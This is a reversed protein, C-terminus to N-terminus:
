MQWHMSPKSPLYQWSPIICRPYFRNVAVNNNNCSECEYLLIQKSAHRHKTMHMMNLLHLGPNVYFVGERELTQPCVSTDTDSHHSHATRHHNLGSSFTCIHGLNHWQHPCSTRCQELHSFGENYDLTWLILVQIFLIKPICISRLFAGLRM